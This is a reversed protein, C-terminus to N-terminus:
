STAAWPEHAPATDRLRHILTLTFATPLALIWTIEAATPGATLAVPISLLFIGPVPFSQVLVYRFVDVDIEQRTLGRHWAYIWVASLTFGTAAVTASYLVVAAVTDGYRGLIATPLPISAVFMLMLLNLRLLNQDYRAVASVKRHHSLWVLGVVVFSLAFTLYGPLLEALAGPLQAAPVEPAHIEIILLTMAIAFVADSFFAMREISDGEAISRLYRTYTRM